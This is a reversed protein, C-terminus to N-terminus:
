TISLRFLSPVTFRVKHSSNYLLAPHNLCFMCLVLPYREANKRRDSLPVSGLQHQYNVRFCYVHEMMVSIQNMDGTHMFM